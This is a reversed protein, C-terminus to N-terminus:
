SQLVCCRSCLEAARRNRKREKFCPVEANRGGRRFRDSGTLADVDVNLGHQCLAHHLLKPNLLHSAQAGKGPQDITVPHSDAANRYFHFTQTHCLQDATVARHRKVKRGEGEERMENM